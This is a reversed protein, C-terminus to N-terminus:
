IHHVCTCHRMHSTLSLQFVINWLLSIINAHHGMHKYAHPVHTHIYFSQHPPWYYAVKCGGGGSLIPLPSEFCCAYIWALASHCMPHWPVTTSVCLLVHSDSIFPGVPWARCTHSMSIFCMHSLHSILGASFYSAHAVLSLYLTVLWPLPYPSSVCPLSAHYIYSFTPHLSIPGFQSVKADARSYTARPPAWRTTKMIRMELPPSPKKPTM